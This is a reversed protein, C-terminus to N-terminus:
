IRAATAARYNMIGSARSIIGAARAIVAGAAGIIQAGHATVCCRAAAQETEYCGYAADDTM